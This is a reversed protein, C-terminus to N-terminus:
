INVKLYKKTYKRSKYITKLFIEEGTEVYPVAYIYENIEILAIKQNLFRKKNPNDIVSIVEDNKIKEVVDSFSIHRIKKLIEDKEKSFHIPKM